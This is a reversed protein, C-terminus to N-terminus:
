TLMDGNQRLRGPPDSSEGGDEAATVAVVRSWDPEHERPPARPTMNRTM